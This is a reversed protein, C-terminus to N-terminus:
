PSWATSAPPWPAPPAAPFGCQSTPCCHSAAPPVLSPPEGALVLLLVYLDTEAHTAIDAGAPLRGEANAHLQRHAEELQWV